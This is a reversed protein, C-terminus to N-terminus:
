PEHRSTMSRAREAVATLLAAGFRADKRVLKLFMHRSIALLVCDNEAVATALRPTRDVLAMEGFVGGPGVNEVVANGVRIEINGDLVVYLVVGFSGARMIIKEAPYHFRAVPGLLKALDAMLDKDLVEAEKCEMDPTLADSQKLKGITKRLREIMVSMLMLAFEPKRALAAHFQKDDLAIVKCPTKAVAAASRPAQNLSAMEGFIEGKRVTAVPKDKALIDVEGDLLLYMRHPMLLLPHGKEREAFIEKGKAIKQADGASQFFDLAVAPNYVTPNTSSRLSPV